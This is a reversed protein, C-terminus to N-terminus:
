IGRIKLLPAAPAAGELAQVEHAKATSHREFLLLHYTTLPLLERTGRGKGSVM